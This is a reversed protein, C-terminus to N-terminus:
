NCERSIEGLQYLFSPPSSASKADIHFVDAQKDDGCLGLIRSEECFNKEQLYFINPLSILKGLGDVLLIFLGLNEV